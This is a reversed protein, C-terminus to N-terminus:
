HLFLGSFHRSESLASWLARELEGAAPPYAVYERAGADLAALYSEWTESLSVIVVPVITSGGAAAQILGRLEEDKLSDEVIMTGFQERAILSKAVGSTDCCVPRMGSKLVKEALSDRHNAEPSVILIPSINAM